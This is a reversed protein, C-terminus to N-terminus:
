SPLIFVLVDRPIIIDFLEVAGCIVNELIVTILVERTEYFFLMHDCMVDCRTIPIYGPVIWSYLFSIFLIISVFPYTKVINKVVLTAFTHSKWLVIVM